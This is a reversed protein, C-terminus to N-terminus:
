SRRWLGLILGINAINSGLANGVALGSNGQSSAIASVLIEPASTGLGVITLGILLPSVGLKTAISATGVVFKDAAVVLVILGVLLAIFNLLMIEKFLTKLM